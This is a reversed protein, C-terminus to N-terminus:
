RLLDDNRNRPHNSNIRVMRNNNHASNARWRHPAVMSQNNSMSRWCFNDQRRNDMEHRNYAKKAVIYLGIKIQSNYTSQLDFM